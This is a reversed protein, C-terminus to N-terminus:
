GTSGHIVNAVIQVVGTENVVASLELSKRFTLPVPWGITFNELGGGGLLQLGYPNPESFGWNRAAAFSLDVVSRNDIRLRVFTLGTAGGQKTVHASLFVGPGALSVLAHTGRSAPARLGQTRQPACVGVACRVERGLAALKPAVNTVRKRIPM